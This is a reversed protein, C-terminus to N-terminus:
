DQGFLALELIAGDGMRWTTGSQHLTNSLQEVTILEEWVLGSEVRELEICVSQMDEDESKGQVIDAYNGLVESNYYRVVYPEGNLRVSAVRDSLFLEALDAPFLQQGGTDATAPAQASTAAAQFANWSKHGNIRAIAELAHTHKLNKGLSHLYQALTSAQAKAHEINLM